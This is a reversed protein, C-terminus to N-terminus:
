PQAACFIQYIKIVTTIGQLLSKVPLFFNFTIKISVAPPLMNDMTRMDHGYPNVYIMDLSAAPVYLFGLLDAMGKAAMAKGAGPPGDVVVIKSNEDMRMSTKDFWARLSTYKKTRYPFPPPKIVEGRIAKSTITAKQQTCPDRRLSLFVAYNEAGSPRSLRAASALIGAGLRM